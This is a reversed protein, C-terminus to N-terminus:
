TELWFRTVTAHRLGTSGALFKVRGVLGPKLWTMNADPKKKDPDALLEVARWFLDRNLKNVVGGGHRHLPPPRGHRAPGDKDM